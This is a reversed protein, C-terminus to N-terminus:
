RRMATLTLFSSVPASACPSATTAEVTEDLLESDDAVGGGRVSDWPVMEVELSTELGGGGLSFVIGLPASLSSFSGNTRGIQLAPAATSGNLQVTVGMLSRM